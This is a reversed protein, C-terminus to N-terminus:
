AAHPLLLPPQLPTSTTPPLAMPSTPVSRVTGGTSTCRPPRWVRVLKVVLRLLTLHTPACKTRHCNSRGAHLVVLETNWNLEVCVQGVGVTYVSVAGTSPTTPSPHCPAGHVLLSSTHWRHRWCQQITPSTTPSTTGPLRLLLLLLM